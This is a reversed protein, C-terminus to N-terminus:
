FHDGIMSLATDKPNVMLISSQLNTQTPDIGLMVGVVSNSCLIATDQIRDLNVDVAALSIAPMALTGDFYAIKIVDGELLNFDLIRDALAANNTLTDADARLIFQDAGTSGMFSDGDNRGILIDNGENGMLLDVGNGGRIVDNGAGGLLHDDGKNGVLLDDGEGAAILDNGQGGRLMDNGGAGVIEDDGANGNVIDAVDTGLIRDNGGWARLGGSQDADVAKIEILNNADDADFFRDQQAGLSAGRIREFLSQRQNADTFVKVKDLDGMPITTPSEVPLPNTVVSKPSNRLLEEPMQFRDAALKFNVMNDFDMAIQNLDVGEVVAERSPTVIQEPTQEGSAPIRTLYHAGTINDAVPYSIRPVEAPIINTM